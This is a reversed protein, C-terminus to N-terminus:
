TPSAPPGPPGWSWPRTGWPGTAGLPWSPPGRNSYPALRGDPGVAGEALVGLCNAPFYDRHDRGQNGAAAVM